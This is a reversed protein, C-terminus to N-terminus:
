EQLGPAGLDSGENGLFVWAFLSGAGLEEFAFRAVLSIAETALGRGWAHEGLWYGIDGSDPHGSFRVSITGVFDGTEREVIAFLYDRAGNSARSWNAFSEELERVERPGRWLLWRLIDDREHVLAFAAAADETRVPRLLVKPGTLTWEPTDPALTM